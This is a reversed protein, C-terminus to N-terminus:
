QIKFTIFAEWQEAEENWDFGCLAYESKKFNEVNEKKKEDVRRHYDEWDDEDECNCPVAAETDDCILLTEVNRFDEPHFCVVYEVLNLLSYSYMQPSNAIFIGNEVLYDIGCEFCFLDSGDYKARLASCSSVDKNVILKIRKTEM